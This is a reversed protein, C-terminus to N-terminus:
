RWILKKGCRHCFSHNPKCRGNCDPCHWVGDKALPKDAVMHKKQLAAYQKSQLRYNRITDLAEEATQAGDEALASLINVAAQCIDWRGGGVTAKIDELSTILKDMTLAITTEAM